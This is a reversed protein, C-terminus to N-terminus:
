KDNQEQRHLSPSAPDPDRTDANVTRPAISGACDAVLKSGDGHTTNMPIGLRRAIREVQDRTRGRQIQRRGDTNHHRRM